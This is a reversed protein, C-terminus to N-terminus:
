RWSRVTQAVRARVEALVRERGHAGKRLVTEVQSAIRQQEAASLDKATLVVVPLDRWEHRAGLQVLFEFGDMEPMMLDLLVLSPRRAEIARLATRGNDAEEVTFGEPELMRRLLQRSPEDDDVVLITPPTAAPPCYKRLIRHLRERDIPKTVYDAAGLSFGLEAQDMVSLMIVPIDCTQPDSKLAMLLAWGDMGPLLVDLTIVQPRLERALRLGEVGDAATVTRYGEEQFSRRLLDRVARDDDIVLITPAPGAAIGASPGDDAPEEGGDDVSSPLRIVFTSGVGAESTCTIEGGMMQCFHQSIFLGLGTGGYRRTTSSDAQTFPKFLRSKQEDTVGIGTDVVAFSLWAGDASPSVTLSIEGAETFKAANTLINLLAQRVKTLDARMHGVDPAMAVRLTNGSQAVLPQVTSLVDGVMTAVDFSEVFLEMRGAEVKSLDLIDDIVNMLHMGSRRIKELDTVLASGGLAAVDEQLMESYGIIANLPTRLEHSMSALFASKARTAAEAEEKATRLEDEHRKRSTIDCLVLLLHQQKRYRFTTGRAEVDFANGDHAVGTLELYSRGSDRVEDRFREFRSCDDAHALQDIPLGVLKAEAYGYLRCAAPNAAGVVGDMGVVLMADTAAEFLSRYQEERERLEDEVRKRSFFGPIEFRTVKRAVEPQDSLYSQIYREIRDPHAMVFRCCDDGKAKCLIESAVLTVGFSEECWGSSYGSNMVCVPFNVVKGAKVWSDSEFSYPHDYLLYYDEDPSPHSDPSVDVFAWGAHAFHIPGASLKEIPDHLSMKAHFNRADAAGIAHAMDFLLSRAVAVAEEEGKDEYLRLIQDFFEVSMSAARVLIYRQDAIEITGETPEFRPQDFYQSVYEQAREFLPVLPEPVRVTRLPPRAPPAASDQDASPLIM